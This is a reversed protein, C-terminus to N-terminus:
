SFATNPPITHAYKIRCIDMQDLRTDMRDLREHVPDLKQDMMDSIAKLLESNEM